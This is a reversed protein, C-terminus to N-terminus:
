LADILERQKELEGKFALEYMAPYRGYGGTGFKEKLHKIAESKRTAPSMEPNWKARYDIARGLMQQIDGPFERDAASILEAFEHSFRGKFSARHQLCAIALMNREQKSLKAILPHDTTSVYLHSMEHHNIRSWAFMDIFYAAMMILRPDYRGGIADNIRLGCQFVTEYHEEQHGKDNLAWADKFQSRIANRLISLEM